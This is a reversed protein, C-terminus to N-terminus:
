VTGGTPQEARQYAEHLIREIEVVRVKQNSLALEKGMKNEKDMNDDALAQLRSTLNELSERLKSNDKEKDATLTELESIKKDKNSSAQELEQKLQFLQLDRMNMEQAQAEIKKTLAKREEEFSGLAQKLNVSTSEQIKELSDKTEQLSKEMLEIRQNKSTVEQDFRQSNAINQIELEKIEQQMNETQEEFVENMHKIRNEYEEKMNQFTKDYKERDENLRKELRAKESEFFHRLQRMNDESKTQFINIETNNKYKLNDIETELGEIKSKYMEKLDSIEKAKISELNKMADNVRRNDDTLTDCKLQLEKLAREYKEVVKSKEKVLDDNAESLQEIKQNLFQRSKEHDQVMQDIKAEFAAKLEEMDKSMGTRKEGRGELASLANENLRKNEELQRKLDSVQIEHFNLNQELLAKEKKHQGTMVKIKEDKEKIKAMADELKKIAEEYKERLESITDEADRPGTIYSAIKLEYERIAAEKEELASQFTKNKDEFDKCTSVHLEAKKDIESQYEALTDRATFLEAQLKSIQDEYKKKLDKSDLTLKEKLEKVEEKYSSEKRSWQEGSKEHFEIGQRLLATEKEYDSRALILKKENERRLDEEAQLKQKLQMIEERFRKKENDLKKGLEDEVTNKEGKMADIKQMLMQNRTELDSKKTELEFVKLSLTNKEKNM